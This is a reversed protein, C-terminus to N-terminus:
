VTYEIRGNKIVLHLRQRSFRKKMKQVTSNHSPVQTTVIFCLRKAAPFRDQTRRITEHLQKEAKDIRSGKLEIYLVRKQKEAATYPLVLLWDCQKHQGTGDVLCGDVQIKAIKLKNANSLVFQSKNEKLAILSNTTHGTCEAYNQYAM